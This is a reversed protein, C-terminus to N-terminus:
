VLAKKLFLTGLFFDPPCDDILDQNGAIKLGSPALIDEALRERLNYRLGKDFRKDNRGEDYDFTLGALGGPKLVRNIEKMVKRRVGSTLHELVCICFVKNFFDAKFPLDLALDRNFIKLPWNMTKAVFRANYIIGHCGWDNDVCYVMCKRCALYYSFITSAGGLDLVTQGPSIDSHALIWANEWTKNREKQPIFDKKKFSGAASTFSLGKQLLTNKLDELQAVMPMIEERELDKELESFTKNM